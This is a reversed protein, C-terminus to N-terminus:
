GGWLWGLDGCGWGLNRPPTQHAHTRANPTNGHPDARDAGDAGNPGDAGDAGNAGNAGNAAKRTKKFGGSCWVWGGPGQTPEPPTQFPKSTRKPAAKVQKRLLVLWRSLKLALTCEIAGGRIRSPAGCVVERRCPAVISHYGHRIRHRWVSIKHFNLPNLRELPRLDLSRGVAM